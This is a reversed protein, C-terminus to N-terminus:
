QRGLERGARVAPVCWTRHHDTLAEWVRVHHRLRAVVGELNGNHAVSRTKVIGGAGNRAEARQRSKWKVYLSGVSTPYAVRHVRDPWPFVRELERDWRAPPPLPGSIVSVDHGAD